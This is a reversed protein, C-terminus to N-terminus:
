RAVHGPAPTPTFGAFTGGNQKHERLENAVRRGEPTLRVVGSTLTQFEVLGAADLDELCDWDDHEPLQYAAKDHADFYEKLFYNKLRTGWQPEWRQHQHPAVLTPHTTPNCRMRRRDIPQNDVVLTEIYALLSWHDKGFRDPTIRETTPATTM